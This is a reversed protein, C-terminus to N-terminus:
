GPRIAFMQMSGDLSFARQHTAFTLGLPKGSAVRGPPKTDGGDFSASASEFSAVEFVTSPSPPKRAKVPRSNM